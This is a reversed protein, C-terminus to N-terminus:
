ELGPLTPAVEALGRDPDIALRREAEEVRMLMTRPIRYGPYLREWEQVAARANDLDAQLALRKNTWTPAKSM